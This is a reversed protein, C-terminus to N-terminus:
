GRAQEETTLKKAPAPFMTDSPVDVGRKSGSRPNPMETLMRAEREPYRGAKDLHQTYGARNPRWWANHDHCWIVFLPEAM